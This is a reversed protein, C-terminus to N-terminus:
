YVHRNTYVREFFGMVATDKDSSYIEATYISVNESFFVFSLRTEIVPVVV